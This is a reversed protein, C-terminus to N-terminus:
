QPMHCSFYCSADGKAKWFQSNLNLNVKESSNIDIKEYDRRKAIRTYEWKLEMDINPYSAIPLHTIQFSLWQNPLYWSECFFQMPFWCAHQRCGALFVQADYKTQGLLVIMRTARLRHSNWTNLFSSGLQQLCRHAHILLWWPMKFNSPLLFPCIHPLLPSLCHGNM